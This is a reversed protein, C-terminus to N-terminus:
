TSAQPSIVMNEQLQFPNSLNHPSFPQISECTSTFNFFLQLGDDREQFRSPNFRASSKFRRARCVWRQTQYEVTTGPSQTLSNFITSFSPPPTLLDNLLDLLAAEVDKWPASENKKSSSCSWSIRSLVAIPVSFGKDNLNRTMRSLEVSAVVWLIGGIWRGDETRETWFQDQYSVKNKCYRYCRAPRRGVSLSARTLSPLPVLLCRRSFSPALAWSWNSIKLKVDQLQIKLMTSLAIWQATEQKRIEMKFLRKLNKRRRGASRWFKKKGQFRRFDNIIQIPGNTNVGTRKFSNASVWKKHIKLNPHTSRFLIEGLSPNTKLTWTTAAAEELFFLLPFSQYM